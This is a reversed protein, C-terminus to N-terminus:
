LSGGHAKIHDLAKEVLEGRGRFSGRIEEVHGIDQDHSGQRLGWISVVVDDPDEQPSSFRIDIWCVRFTTDLNNVLRTQATIPRHPMHITKTVTTEIEQPNFNFSM